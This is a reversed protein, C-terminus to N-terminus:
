FSLKRLQRGYCQEVIRTNTRDMNYNLIPKMTKLHLIAM